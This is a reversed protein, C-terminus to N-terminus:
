FLIYVNSLGDFQKKDATYRGAATFSLSETAHVTVKGFGAWSETGTTFTQYPSLTQQNYRATADIEEDFYIGGILYDVSSGLEGAWRAEISAQKDKEASAAGRFVGNFLYALDAERYAPQVTLTIQGFLSLYGAM